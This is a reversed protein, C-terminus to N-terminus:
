LHRVTSTLSLALSNRLSPPLFDLVRVLQRHDTSPFAAKFDLYCLIIDKKHSHADEVCLSLRTIARSCSRDARFGEQEPCLIKRAESCYTALTVICTTWLKYLANVLIIPRYNDLRTPDDKKCLLITNSKHWSPPTIWTIATSEFLLHLAEHFAPPMHKLIPASAGDPGM